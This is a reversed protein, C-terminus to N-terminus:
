STPPKISADKVLPRTPDIRTFLLAAVAVMAAILRLPARYGGTAKVVYGFLVSCAFGGFQGATNMTGTVVGARDRGVDLCVAWATPLMLDAIGFGLSSLVVIAAKNDTFTLGALLLASVALSVCGVVRRGAKLGFRAVMWDSLFGGAVNGSMGLLFPLASFIGMQTESFGAGKMLYVPFWGFYFWSGWAYCWYMTFILWLQRQRLLEGWPVSQHSLPAARGAIEDLEQQSIGPQEAPRDHYWRRWGIVWLGGIAGLMGFTARWGFLSQLPVVLLPSLAGGFRSAAWIFGQARARETAPFWRALVGSMNPYAGAEGVGFLFRTTLLGRYSTAVGTLCTFASWWLVIRTIVRGHGTCDGLAGTPIEFIGYGLVFAGLIWGWREPPIRLEQQIWPAAVAISIRDLFTIIALVVLLLLIGHRKKLGLGEV